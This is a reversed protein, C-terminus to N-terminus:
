AGGARGVGEGSAGDVGDEAAATELAELFTERAKKLGDADGASTM